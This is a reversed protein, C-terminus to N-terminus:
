GVRFLRGKRRAELELTRIDIKMAKRGPKSREDIWRMVDSERFRLFRGLKIFPVYEQHTWQYITSVKVGILESLEDINLLKDM